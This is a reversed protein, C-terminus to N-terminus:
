SDICQFLAVSPVKVNKPNLVLFCIICINKWIYWFYIIKGNSYNKRPIFSNSYDAHLPIEFKQTRCNIKFMPYKYISSTLFVRVLTHRTQLRSHQQPQQGRGGPPGAQQVAAQDV